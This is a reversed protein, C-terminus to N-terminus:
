DEVRIARRMWVVGVLQLAIASLLITRGVTASWMPGLYGPDIAQLAAAVAAPLAGLVWASLRGQATLAKVEAALRRRERLTDHLGTLIEGLNGGWTRQVAIAEVMLDVEPARLGRAFHGLADEVPLGWATEELVDQWPRAAAGRQEDTARQWAALFGQGSRLAGTMTWLASPLGDLIERRVREASSALWAISGALVLLAALAGPVPARMASGVVFGAVLATLGTIVWWERGTLSWGARDLRTEIWGVRSRGPRRAEQRKSASRPKAVGHELRALRNLLHRDTLLGGPATLAIPVLTGAAIAAVHWTLM